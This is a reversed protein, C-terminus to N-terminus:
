LMPVFVLATFVPRVLLGLPSLHMPLKVCEKMAIARHLILKRMLLARQMDDLNGRREALVVVNV